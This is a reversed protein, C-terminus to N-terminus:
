LLQLWSLQILSSLPTPLTVSKLIFSHYHYHYSGFVDLPLFCVLLQSVVLLYSVIFAHSEPDQILRNISLELQNVKENVRM